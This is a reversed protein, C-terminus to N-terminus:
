LLTHLTGKEDDDYVIGRFFAQRDRGWGVKSRNREPSGFDGRKRGVGPCRRHSGLKDTSMDHFELRKTRGELVNHWPPATAGAGNSKRV